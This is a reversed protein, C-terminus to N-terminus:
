LFMQSAWSSCKPVHTVVAIVFMRYLVHLRGLKTIEAHIILYPGFQTGGRVVTM